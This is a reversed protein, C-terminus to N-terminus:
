DFFFDVVKRSSCYLGAYIGGFISRVKYEGRNRYVEPELAEFVEKTMAAYECFMFLMATVNEATLPVKRNM